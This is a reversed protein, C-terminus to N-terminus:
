ILSKRIQGRYLDVLMEGDSVRYFRATTYRGGHKQQLIRMKMKNFVDAAGKEQEDIFSYYDEKPKENNPFWVLLKYRSKNPGPKTSKKM